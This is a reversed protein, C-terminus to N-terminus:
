FDLSFEEVNSFDETLFSYKRVIKKPLNKIKKGNSDCICSDQKSIFKDSNLVKWGDKSFSFRVPFIEGVMEKYWVNAKKTRLIKVFM